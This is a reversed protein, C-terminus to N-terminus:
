PVMSALVFKSHWAPQVKEAVADVGPQTRWAQSMGHVREDLGLKATVPSADALIEGPYDLRM